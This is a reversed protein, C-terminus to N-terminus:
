INLPLSTYGQLLEPGQNEDFERKNVEFLSTPGKLLEPEQNEDFVEQKAEFFM